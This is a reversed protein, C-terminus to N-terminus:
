SSAGMFVGYSDPPKPAGPQQSHTQGGVTNVPAVPDFMSPVLCILPLQRQTLPFTFTPLPARILNLHSTSPSSYFLTTRVEQRYLYESMERYEAIERGAFDGRLELWADTKDSNLKAKKRGSM